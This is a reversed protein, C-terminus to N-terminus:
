KIKLNFFIYNERQHICLLLLKMSANEQISTNRQQKKEKAKDSEKNSVCFLFFFNRQRILNRTPCMSLFKKSTRWRM